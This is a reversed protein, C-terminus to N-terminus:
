FHPTGPDAWVNFPAVIEYSLREYLSRAMPTAHLISTRIGEARAAHLGHLTLLSALGRGRGAETTAVGYVGAVGRHLHVAAKSVPQDELYAIWLRISRSGIAREFISTLYPSSADRQLNYRWSILELWTATDHVTTERVEVGRPSSPIPELDDLSRVMGSLEDAPELGVKRLVTELRRPATPHVFWIASVGRERFPRLAHAAQEDLPADGEDYFRWVGNYPPKAVPTEVVLRTDSDTVRGGPGSGIARGLSWVNTELAGIAEDSSTVM